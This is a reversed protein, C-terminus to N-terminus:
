WRRIVAIIWSQRRAQFRPSRGNRNTCSALKRGLGGVGPAVHHACTRSACRRVSPRGFVAIAEAISM